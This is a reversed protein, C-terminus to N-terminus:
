GRLKVKIPFGIFDNQQLKRISFHHPLNGITPLDTQAIQLYYIGEYGKESLYSAMLRLDSHPILETAVTTRVEFPLASELLLALSKEFEAYLNSGTIQAFHQPLAKFDLAVYDLLSLDIMKQITAPHSGNTDLKLKFGMEKVETAFQIISSHSTCEGGSFVVGDLLGIRKRLFALIEEYSLRGKGLVIQPNYCYQCRMNCGVFWLICATCDPFDLLTFPSLDYIPRALSM